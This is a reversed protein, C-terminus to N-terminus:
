LPMMDSNSISVRHHSDECPRVELIMIERIAKDQPLVQNLPKFSPVTIPPATIDNTTVLTVLSKFASQIAQYALESPSLSMKERYTNIDSPAALIWPNTLEHPISSVMYVMQPVM